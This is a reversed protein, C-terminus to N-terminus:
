LILIVQVTRCPLALVMDHDRFRVALLQQKPLDPPVQAIYEALKGPALFAPDLSPMLFWSATALLNRTPNRTPNRLNRHIPVPHQENSVHRGCDRGSVGRRGVAKALDRTGCYHWLGLESNVDLFVCASLWRVQSSFFGSSTLL